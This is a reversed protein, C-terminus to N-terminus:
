IMSSIQLAVSESRCPRSMSWSSGLEISRLFRSPYKQHGNGLCIQQWLYRRPPGRGRARAGDQPQDSATRDIVTFRGQDSAQEVFLLQDGSVLQCRELTIRPLVPGHALVDIKREEDVPELSFALLADGDVHGIPIKRGRRSREDDGVRRTVLLIRAIHHRGGGIRIEGDNQNIRSLPEQRLGEAM